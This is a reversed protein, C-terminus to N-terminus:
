EEDSGADTFTVELEVPKAYESMAEDILQDLREIFPGSKKPNGELMAVLDLSQAEFATKLGASLAVARAALEQYVANRAICKGPKVKLDFEERDAANKIRRIEHEEKERQRRAADTALKDPTGATPLSAAYAILEDVPIDPATVGIPHYLSQRLTRDQEVKALMNKESANLTEAECRKKVQGAYKNKKM